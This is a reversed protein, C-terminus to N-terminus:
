SVQELLSKHLAVPPEVGLRKLMTQAIKAVLLNWDYHCAVVRRAQQREPTNFAPHLAAELERSWEEPTRVLAVVEPFDELSRIRTGVTPRGSALYEHLKLPYIYKTYDNAVYPM